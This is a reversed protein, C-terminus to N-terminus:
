SETRLGEAVLQLRLLRRLKLNSGKGFATAGKTGTMVQGPEETGNRLRDKTRLRKGRCEETTQKTRSRALNGTWDEKCM